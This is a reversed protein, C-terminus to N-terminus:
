RITDPSGAALTLLAALEARDPLGTQDGLAASAAAGCAATAPVRRGIAVVGGTKIGAPVAPRTAATTM